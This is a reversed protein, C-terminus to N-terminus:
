SAFLPRSNGGHGSCSGRIGGSHSLLGDYCRIVYGRTQHWFSPICAFVSCLNSPPNRIQQGRCYTYDWPNSPAGCLDGTAPATPTSQNMAVPANPTPTPQDTAVPGDAPRITDGACTAPSWLGAQNAIAQTEAAKYADIHEYPLSYTYEHAFGDAIIVEGFDRGDSLWVYALMRGYIDREGQSPDLEIAVSQGDLLEHAHASAERGFCQVPKRPDVTEPTDIGILRIREPGGDEFEVDVTDGDVVNTITAPLSSSQAAATPAFSGLTSLLLV